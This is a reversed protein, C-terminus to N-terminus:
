KVQDIMSFSLSFFHGALIEQPNETLSSEFREIRLTQVQSKMSICTQVEEPTIPGRSRSTRLAQQKKLCSLKSFNNTSTCLKLLAHPTITDQMKRNSFSAICTGTFSSRVMQCASIVLAAEPSTRMSSSTTIENFAKHVCSAVRGRSSTGIGSTSELYNEQEEVWGAAQCVRSIESVSLKKSKRIDIVCQIIVDVQQPSAAHRCLTNADGTSWEASSSLRGRCMNYSDDDVKNGLSDIHMDLDPNVPRAESMDQCAKEAKSLSLRGQKLGSRVCELQTLSMVRRCLSVTEHHEVKRVLGAIMTITKWCQLPLTNEIGPCLDLGYM